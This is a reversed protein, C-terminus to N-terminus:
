RSCPRPTRRRCRQQQARGEDVAPGCLRRCYNQIGGNCAASRLQDHLGALEEPQRLRVDEFQARRGHQQRATQPSQEDRAERNQDCGADHNRQHRTATTMTAAKAPRATRTLQQPTIQEEDAHNRLIDGRCEGAASRLLGCSAQLAQDAEVIQGLFVLERAAFGGAVRRRLLNRIVPHGGGAAITRDAAAHLDAHFLAAGDRGARQGRM